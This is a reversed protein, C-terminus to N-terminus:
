KTDPPDLFTWYYFILMKSLFFFVLIMECPKLRFNWRLAGPEGRHLPNNRQLHSCVIKGVDSAQRSLQAEGTSLCPNPNGKLSNTCVTLERLIWYTYTVKHPKQLYSMFTTTMGKKDELVSEMYSLAALYATWGHQSEMSHLIEHRVCGWLGLKWYEM